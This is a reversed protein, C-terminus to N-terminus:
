GHQVHRAPPTMPPSPVTVHANASATSHNVPGRSRLRRRRIVVLRCLHRHVPILDAQLPAEQHGTVPDELRTTSRKLKPPTPPARLLGRSSTSTRLVSAASDAG